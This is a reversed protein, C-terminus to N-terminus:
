AQTIEIQREVHAIVDLFKWASVGCRAILDNSYIIRQKNRATIFNERGFSIESPVTEVLFFFFVFPFSLVSPM